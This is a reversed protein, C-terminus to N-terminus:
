QLPLTHVVRFEVAGVVWEGVDNTERTVRTFQFKYSLPWTADYVMLKNIVAQEGDLAGAVDGGVAQNIARAARTATTFDTQYLVLSLDTKGALSFPVEREVLGGDTHSVIDRDSVTRIRPSAETVAATSDRYIRYERFDQAPSPSWDTGVETDTFVTPGVFYGPRDVSRQVLVRGEQGGIALYRQIGAQARADIVPGVRTGPEAPDGIELSLVAEKLRGLQLALLQGKTIETLMTALKEQVLQFSAIPRGFQERLLMDFSFYDINRGDLGKFCCGNQACYFPRSQQDAHLFV